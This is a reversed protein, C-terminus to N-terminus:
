PFFFCSTERLECNVTMNRDLVAGSLGEDWVGMHCNLSYYEKIMEAPIKEAKKREEQNLSFASVRGTHEDRHEKTLFHCNRCIPKMAMVGFTRSGVM